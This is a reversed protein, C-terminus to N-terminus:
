LVGVKQRVTGVGRRGVEYDRLRDELEAKEQLAADARGTQCALERELWQLRRQDVACASCAEQVHM